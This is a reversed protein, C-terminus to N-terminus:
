TTFGRIDSFFITVECRDGGLRVSDPERVLLNVVEPNLYPRFVDRIRREGLYRVVTGGLTQFVIAALPYVASVVIGRTTFLRQTGWICPTLLGAIGIFGWIGPMCLLLAVLVGLLLVAGAELPIVWAPRLLARGELINDIVTAHVEVGPMKVSFPSTYRDGAFTTGVLAIRGRVADAPFAGDIVDCARLYTFPGPSDSPRAPGPPGLYNIWLAGTEAVPIRHGGVGLGGVGWPELRVKPTSDEEFRRVTELGLAAGVRDGVRMVMPVRRLQGDADQTFTAYGSGSA